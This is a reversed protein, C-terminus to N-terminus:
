GVLGQWGPGPLGIRRQAFATSTNKLLVPTHQGSRLRKGQAPIRDPTAFKGDTAKLRLLMAGASYGGCLFLREDDVVVPSAVTAIKIVWADTEWLVQGTDAARGACRRQRKCTSASAKM